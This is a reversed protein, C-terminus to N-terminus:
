SSSPASRTTGSLTPPSSRPSSWGGRRCSSTRPARCGSATSRTRRPWAAAPAAMRRVVPVPTRFCSAPIIAPVRYLQSRLNVFIEGVLAKNYINVLAKVNLFRNLCKALRANVM